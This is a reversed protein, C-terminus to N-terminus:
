EELYNELAIHGLFTESQDNVLIHLTAVGNEVLTSQISKYLRQEQEVSVSMASDFQFHLVVTQDKLFITPLPLAEPWLGELNDRLASLIRSLRQSKDLPLDLTKYKPQSLEFNLPDLYVVLQVEEPQLRIEPSELQLSLREPQVQWTSRLVSYMGSLFM